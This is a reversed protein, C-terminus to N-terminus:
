NEVTMGTYDEIFKIKKYDNFNLKSVAEVLMKKEAFSVALEEIAKKFSAMSKLSFADAIKKEDIISQPKDETELGTYIRTEKDDVFIWPHKGDQSEGWFLTSRSEIKAVVEARGILISTYPPLNVEGETIIKRFGVPFSTLNKIVINKSMDFSDM